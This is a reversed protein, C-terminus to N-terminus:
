GATAWKDAKVDYIEVSKTKEDSSASLFGGSVVISRKSNAFCSAFGVRGTNLHQKHTARWESTIENWYLETVEPKIQTKQAASRIKTSQGGIVFLSKNSAPILKAAYTDKM